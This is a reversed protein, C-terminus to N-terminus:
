PGLVDRYRVAAGIPEGRAAWRVARLLLEPHAPELTPNPSFLVIRGRGYAAVAIAPTDLMEGPLTGHGQLYLEGRFTALTVFPALGPVAEAELIPGNAYHLELEATGDNPRVPIPAIGRIWRDGTRNHAAVIGIKHFEAPGQIALYSGACIGVYGGGERVFRRVRERGDEGLLRGQVSGRGGTFLVVSARDLGRGRVDEPTVERADLEALAGRAAVLADDGVGPASYIAVRLRIQQADVGAGLGAVTLLAPAVVLGWRM